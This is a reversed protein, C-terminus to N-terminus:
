GLSYFQVISSIYPYLRLRVPVKRLRSQYRLQSNQGPAVLSKSAVLSAPANAAPTGATASLVSASALDTALLGPQPMAGLSSGPLMAAISGAKYALSDFQLLVNGGRIVADIVSEGYYDGRVEEQPMEQDLTYGDESLGSSAGAFTHLYAGAVFTDLAM